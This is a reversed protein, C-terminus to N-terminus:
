VYKFELEILNRYLGTELEDLNRINVTELDAHLVVENSLTVYEILKLMLKDSIIGVEKQSKSWVNIQVFYHGYIAGKTRGLQLNPRRIVIVPYTEISTEDISVDYGLNDAILYLENMFEQTVSQTM